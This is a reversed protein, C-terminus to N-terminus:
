PFTKQVTESKIPKVQGAHHRLPQSKCHYAQPKLKLFIFHINSFESLFVYWEASFLCLQNSNYPLESQLPEMTPERLILM